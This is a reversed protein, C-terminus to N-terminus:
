VLFIRPKGSQVHGMVLGRSKFYGHGKPNPNLNLIRSTSKNLDDLTEEGIHGQDTLGKLFFNWRKADDSPGKYWNWRHDRGDLTTPDEWIVDDAFEAIVENIAKKLVEEPYFDEYLAKIDSPATGKVFLERVKKKCKEFNQDSM